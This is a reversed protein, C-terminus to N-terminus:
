SATDDGTATADDDVDAVASRLANLRRGFDAAAEYVVTSADDAADQVAEPVDDEWAFSDLREALEEAANSFTDALCEVEDVLAKWASVDDHVAENQPEAPAAQTTTGTATNTM